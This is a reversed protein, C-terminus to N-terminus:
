ISEEHVDGYVLKKQYVEEYKNVCQMYNNETMEQVNQKFTKNPDPYITKLINVTYKKVPFGENDLKDQNELTVFCPVIPVNNKVAIYAAGKQHPRPKEYNWWMAQEPYVLIFHKKKLVESVAKNFNQMTHMNSSLPLTDCYKFLYGYRGPMQFNGEKIVIFMRKHKNIKKCVLTECISELPAFHNGTIIAGTNLKPLNELGKIEVQYFKKAFKRLRYGMYRGKLNKFKNKFKKYLYDVDEPKLEKSEPDNEVDKYFYEGGLSEYEKIKNLIELREKSQEM